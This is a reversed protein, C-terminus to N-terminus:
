SGLKIALYYLIFKEFSISLVNQNVVNDSATQYIGLDM